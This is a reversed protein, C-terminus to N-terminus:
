KFIKVLFGVASGFVIIYGVITHVLEPLWNLIFVNLFTGNIFLGGVGIGVILSIVMWLWDSWHMKQKAM